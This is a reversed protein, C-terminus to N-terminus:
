DRRAMVMQALEDQTLYTLIEVKPAGDSGIKEALGILVRALRQLIDDLALANVQEYAETLADCLFELLREFMEPQLQMVKIVDEYPVPIVTTDELAVARDPQPRGCVCLEGVIDGGKRVDYIIERGDSAITGGKVFGTQLFFFTRIHDGVEYIVANKQFASTKSETPHGRL